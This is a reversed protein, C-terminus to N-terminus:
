WLPGRQGFVTITKFRIFQCCQNPFNEYIRMREIYLYYRINPINTAREIGIMYFLKCM